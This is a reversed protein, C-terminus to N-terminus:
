HLSPHVTRLHPAHRRSTLSCECRITILRHCCGTQCTSFSRRRRCSPQGSGREPSGHCVPNVEVSKQILHKGEDVMQMAAADGTRAKGMNAHILMTGLNAYSTYLDREGVIGASEQQALKGRLLPIAKEPQGLRDFAVALDDILPWRAPDNEPQQSLLEQTRRNRAEYWNTGHKPFREHLVDQVMAFRLSVGGRFQPVHHPLPVRKALFAYRQPTISVYVVSSTIFGTCGGFLTGIFVGILVLLRRQM